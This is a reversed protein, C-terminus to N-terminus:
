GQHRLGGGAPAGADKAEATIQFDMARGGFRSRQSSRRCLWIFDFLRWSSCCRSNWWNARRVTFIETMGGLWRRCGARMVAAFAAVAYAPLVRWWLIPLAALAGGARSQPRWRTRGAADRGRRVPLRYALRWWRGARSVRRLGLAAARRVEGMTALEVIELALFFFIAATGFSGIRRARMIELARRRDLGAGRADATDAFADLHVASRSCSYLRPSRM